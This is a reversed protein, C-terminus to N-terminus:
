TACPPQDQRIIITPIRYLNVAREITHFTGRSSGDWLAVVYQPGSELMKLNRFIGARKGYTAWDAKETTNAVNLKWAALRACDDAGRAGGQMIHFRGSFLIYLHVMLLDVWWQNSWARSGCFLVLPYCHLCTSRSAYKSHCTCYCDM